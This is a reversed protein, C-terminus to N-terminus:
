TVASRLASRCALRQARRVATAFAAGPDPTLPRHSPLLVRPDLDVMRHLSAPATIAADPGDLALHGLRRRLDVPRTGDPDAQPEGPTGAAEV